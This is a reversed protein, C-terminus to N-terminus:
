RQFNLRAVKEILAMKPNIPQFYFHPAHPAKYNFIWSASNNTGLM